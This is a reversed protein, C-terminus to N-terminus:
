PEITFTVATAPGEVGGNATCTEGLGFDVDVSCPVLKLTHTGLEGMKAVVSDHHPGVRRRIRDDSGPEVDFPM